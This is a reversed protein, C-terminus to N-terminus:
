KRFVACPDEREAPSTHWVFDFPLTLGDAGLASPEEETEVLGVSLISLEPAVEALYVPVGRDIRAHGNGTILVVQGGSRERARLVAAAFSADRLRQAEVMGPAASKPLHGCHSAVMEDEMATQTPADLDTALVPMFRDDGIVAAAGDRIARRAPGRGTGGGTFVKAGSATFIPRYLAWDPWGLRKWGIAPGIEAPAGGDELFVAVGEESAEPIMEFALGAPRLQSVVWAQAGHHEANDHLEGLIVVDAERLRAVLADWGIPAGGEVELPQGTPQEPEEASTKAIGCATLACLILCLAIPRM